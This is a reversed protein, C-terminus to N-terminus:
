IFTYVVQGLRIEDGVKLNAKENTNLLNGNVITGNTSNLDTIYYEGEELDLKCHIRSVTEHRVVGDVAGELKGVIFPYLEIVFDQYQNESAKLTRYSTVQANQFFTTEGYVVSTSIINKTLEEANKEIEFNEEEVLPNTINETKSEKYKIKIEKNEEEFFFDEPEETEAYKLKYLYYGAAICALVAAALVKETIEKYFGFAVAIGAALIMLILIGIVIVPVSKLDILKKEDAGKSEEEMEFEIESQISQQEKDNSAPKQVEIKKTGQGREEFVEQFIQMFSCNDEGSKKYCEYAAAVAKEDSYDICELLFEMLRHLTHSEEQEEPILCFYYEKKEIDVYIMEPNTILYKTSLLFDEMKLIVQQVSWLLTKLEEYNMKKKEYIRLLPQKSTIEYLLKIKGDVKNLQHSLIGPIQNNLIMQMEYHNENVNGCCVLYTHNMNREYSLTIGQEM